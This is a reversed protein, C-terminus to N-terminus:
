CSSNKVVVGEKLLYNHYSESHRAPAHYGGPFGGGHFRVPKGNDGKKNEAWLPWYREFYKSSIRRGSPTKYVGHIHPTGKETHELVFAWEAAKEYPKNTIGRELILRAVEELPKPPIYDPPMTLTFAYETDPNAAQPHKLAPPQYKLYQEYTACGPCGPHPIWGVPLGLFPYKPFKGIPVTDCAASYLTYNTRCIDSIEWVPSRFPLEAGPAILDDLPDYIRTDRPDAAM